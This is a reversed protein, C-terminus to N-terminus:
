PTTVTVANSAASRNGDLDVATVTYTLATSPKVHRADSFTTRAARITSAIGDSRHVIYAKLSPAGAEDASATWSLEVQRCNAVTAILDTPPIPTVASAARLVAPSCFATIVIGLVGVIQPLKRTLRILIKM